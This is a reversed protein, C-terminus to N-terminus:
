ISTVSCSITILSSQLVSQSLIIDLIDDIFNLYIGFGISIGSFGSSVGTLPYPFANHPPSQKLQVESTM